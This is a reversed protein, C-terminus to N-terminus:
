KFWLNLDRSSFFMKTAFTLPNKGHM